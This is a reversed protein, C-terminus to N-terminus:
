NYHKNHTLVKTPKPLFKKSYIKNEHKQIMTFYRREKNPINKLGNELTNLEKHMAEGAQELRFIKNLLSGRERIVTPFVLSLAVMKPTLNLTPFYVPFIKCWMECERAGEEVQEPTPNRLSFYTDIKALNKWLNDLKERLQPDDKFCETITFNGERISDYAKHIINGTVADGGFHRETHMNLKKLSDEFAKETEGM